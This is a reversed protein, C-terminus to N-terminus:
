QKFYKEWLKNHKYLKTNTSRYRIATMEDKLKTQFYQQVFWKEYMIHMQIVGGRGTMLTGTQRGKSNIYYSGEPYQEKLEEKRGAEWEEITEYKACSAFISVTEKDINEWKDSIAPTLYKEIVSKLKKMYNFSNKADPKFGVSQIIMEAKSFRLPFSTQKTRDM